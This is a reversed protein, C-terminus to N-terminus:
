PFMRALDQPLQALTDDIQGEPAWERLVRLVARVENEVEDIDVSDIEGSVRDLFAGKDFAEAQGSRQSLETRLEDPLDAGLDQIQGATIREALTSVTARAVREADVTSSLSAHEQVRQLFREMAASHSTPLTVTNSRERGLIM